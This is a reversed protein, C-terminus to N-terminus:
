LIHDPKQVRQRGRNFPPKFARIYTAEVADLDAAAVPLTFWRDFPIRPKHSRLRDFVNNSQGIYQVTQGLLLFYVGTSVVPHSRACIEKLSLVVPMVGVEPVHGNRMAEKMPIAIRRAAAVTPIQALTGLTKKVHKGNLRALLKWSAGGTHSVELYLCPCHKVRYGVRGTAPPRIRPLTM